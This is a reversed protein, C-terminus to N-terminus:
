RMSIQVDEYIKVGPIERAGEAVAARIKKEDISCYAMPIATPDLIEFKWVMKSGKVNQANLAAMKTKEEKIIEKQKREAEADIMAAEKKAVPAETFMALTEQEQRKLRAEEDAKAQAAKREAEIKALEAQRKKNQEIQYSALGSKLHAEADLLPKSIEKAYDDISKKTDMIPKTLEVRRDEIKKLMVKVQKGVAMADGMQKEDTVVMSKIPAAFITVEAKLEDFKSLESM